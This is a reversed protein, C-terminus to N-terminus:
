EPKKQNKLFLFSELAEQYEKDTSNNSTPFTLEPPTLITEFSSNEDSPSENPSSESDRTNSDFRNELNKQFSKLHTILHSKKPPNDQGEAMFDPPPSEPSPHSDDAEQPIESSPLFTDENEEETEEHLSPKAQAEPISTITDTNIERAAIEETEEPSSYKERLKQIAQQMRTQLDDMEHNEDEKEEVSPEAAQSTKTGNWDEDFLHSFEHNEDDALPSLEPNEDETDHQRDSSDMALFEDTAEQDLTLQKTFSSSELDQLVPGDQISLDPVDNELNLELDDQGLQYDTITSKKFSIDKFNEKLDILPKEFEFDKMEEMLRDLRDNAEASTKKAKILTYPLVILALLTIISALPNDLVKDWFPKLFTLYQFNEPNLMSNVQLMLSGWLEQINLINFLGEFM